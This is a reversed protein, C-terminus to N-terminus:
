CSFCCLHDQPHIIDDLAGGPLSPLLSISALQPFLECHFSHSKPLPSHMGHLGQWKSWPWAAVRHARMSCPTTSTHASFTQCSQLAAFKDLKSLIAVLSALGESLHGKTVDVKMISCLTCTSAAEVYQRIAEGSDGHLKRPVACKRAHESMLRMDSKRCPGRRWRGERGDGRQRASSIHVGERGFTHPRSLKKHLLTVHRCMIMRTLM